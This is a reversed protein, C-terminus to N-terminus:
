QVAAGVDVSLVVTKPVGQVVGTVVAVVKDHVLQHPEFAVVIHQLIHPARLILQWQVNSFIVRDLFREMLYPSRALFSIEVQHPDQDPLSLLGVFLRVLEPVCREVNRSLM